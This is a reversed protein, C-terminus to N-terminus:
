AARVQMSGSYKKDNMDEKIRGVATAFLSGHYDARGNDMVYAFLQALAGHLYADPYDILIENSINTSSLPTFKKRYTLVLNGTNSPSVYISTGIVTFYSASGSNNRLADFQGPTIYTLKRSMDGDWYASRAGLFGTPLAGVGNSVSVTATTDTDALKATTQMAVEAQMIFDPILADLDTRKSWNKISTQLETYTAISM